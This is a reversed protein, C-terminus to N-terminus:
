RRTRAPASSADGSRCSGGLASLPWGAGRRMLRRRRSHQQHQRDPRLIGLRRRRAAKRRSIRTSAPPWPARWWKRLQWGRRVSHQAAWLLCFAQWGRDPTMALMPLALVSARHPRGDHREVHFRRHRRCPHGARLGAAARQWPTRRRRRSRRSARRSSRGTSVTAKPPASSRDMM